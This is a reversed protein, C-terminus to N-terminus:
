NLERKKKLFVLASNLGTYGVIKGEYVTNKSLYRTGLTYRAVGFKKSM